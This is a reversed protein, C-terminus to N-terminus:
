ADTPGLAHLKHLRRVAVREYNKFLAWHNKAKRLYVREDRNGNLAMDILLGHDIHKTDETLERVGGLHLSLEGRHEWWDRIAKESLNFHYAQKVVAKDYKEGLRNRKKNKKAESRHYDESITLLRRRKLNEM